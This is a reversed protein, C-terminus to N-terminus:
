FSNKNLEWIFRMGDLTLNRDVIDFKRQMSDIVFDSYGGTAIIKAKSGLEKECEDIMGSILAAHGKVLGSLMADITNKGITSEPAEIKVKPLKSTYKALAEAQIKLGPTIIGGIFNGNADLIDFTTATGFDVVIAPYGYKKYAGMANALRDAGLEKPKDLLINIGTYSKHNIVHCDIKLYKEIAEKFKMTLPLVVSSIVSSKLYQNLGAHKIFNFLIVGYEDETRRADSAIKWDAVLKDGNFVGLTIVTNGIDAVLLM